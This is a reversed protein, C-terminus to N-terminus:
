DEMELEITERNLKLVGDDIDDETADGEDVLGLETDEM